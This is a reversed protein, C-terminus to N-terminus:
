DPWRASHDNRQRILSRRMKCSWILESGSRRIGDHLFGLGRERIERAMKNAFDPGSRSRSKSVSGACVRHVGSEGLCAAALRSSELQLKFQFGFGSEFFSGASKSDSHSFGKAASPFRPVYTRKGEANKPRKPRIRRSEDVVCFVRPNKSFNRTKYAWWWGWGVYLKKGVSILTQPLLTVVFKSPSARSM